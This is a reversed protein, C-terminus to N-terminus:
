GGEACSCAQSRWVGCAEDHRVEARAALGIAFDVIRRQAHRDLELGQALLHRAWQLEDIGISGTFTPTPPTPVM